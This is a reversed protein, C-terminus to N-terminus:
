ERQSSVDSLVCRDAEVWPIHSFNAHEIFVAKQTSCDGSLQSSLGDRQSIDNADAILASLFQPRDEVVALLHDVSKQLQFLPRGQLFAM